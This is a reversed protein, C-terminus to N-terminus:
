PREQKIGALMRMTSERAFLTAVSCPIKRRWNPYETSTGPINVPTDLLALDDLQVSLLQSACSACCQMIAAGLEVDFARSEDREAWSAPLLGAEALWDFVARKERQRHAREADLQLDSAIMGLSRRLLLDRVDWWARLTPVDHNAIIALAMRAYDAPKRFNLVDVKEFYFVLNTFIGSEQIHSRIAPPVVGLDEGIVLCRARMSEIRLIAFLENVPYHVYAGSANSGDTPCWWLRMLAMVHDIRLAGCGQMNSQLLEIFLTYGTKALRDPRLPPLGWNQGDPNYNDPPAGIRAERCFLAPNTQVECSDIGGGVALDRIVGVAMGQALALAQCAALQRAALWQLYLHFGSDHCCAIGDLAITAQFSAFVGLAPGQSAVYDEFQRARPSATQLHTDRFGQYMLDFARFKLRFVGAYDVLPAASLAAEQEKWAPESCLALLAPNDSFDDEAQPDIYLPNLFRRDVPSYPSCNEPYQLDLAHLPNLLIFDAGQRASCVILEQLDSFNGLGWNHASRLSYLQASVGWLKSGASVWEPGYCREPSVMLLSSVWKEGNSLQLQHYGTPLSPLPLEVARFHQGDLQATEMVPFDAFSFKGTMKEGTELRVEWIMPQGAEEEHCACRVVFHQRGMLVVPPLWQTWPEASSQALLEDLEAESGPTIGRAVLISIRNRLPTLAVNGSFEIFESAIGTVDLLKELKSRPLALMMESLDHKDTRM